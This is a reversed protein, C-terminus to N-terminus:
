NQEYSLCTWISNQFYKRFLSMNSLRQDGPDQSSRSSNNDLNYM